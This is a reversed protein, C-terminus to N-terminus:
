SAAAAAVREEMTMITPLADPSEGIVVSAVDFLKRKAELLDSLWVEKFQTVPRHVLRQQEMRYTIDIGALQASMSSGPRSPDEMISSILRDSSELLNAVMSKAQDEMPKTITAPDFGVSAPVAEDEEIFETPDKPTPPQPFGFEGPDVTFFVSATANPIPRRRTPISYLAELVFASGEIRVRKLCHKWVPSLKWTSMILEVYHESKKWGYAEGELKAEDEPGMRSSAASTARSGPAAAHMGAIRRDTASMVRAVMYQSQEQMEKMELQSQEMSDPNSM